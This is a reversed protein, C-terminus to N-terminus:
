ESYFWNGKKILEEQLYELEEKKLLQNAAKSFYGIGRISISLGDFAARDPHNQLTAFFKQM